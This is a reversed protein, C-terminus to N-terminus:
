AVGGRHIIHAWCSGLAPEREKEHRMTWRLELKARRALRRKEPESLESQRERARRRVAAAELERNM